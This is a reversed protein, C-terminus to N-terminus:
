CKGSCSVLCYVFLRFVNDGIRICCLSGFIGCFDLFFIGYLKKVTDSVIRHRRIGQGRLFEGRGRRQRVLNQRISCDGATYDGCFTGKSYNNRRIGTSHECSIAIGDRHCRPLGNICVFSHCDVVVATRHKVIKGHDVVVASRNIGVAAGNVVIGTNDIGIM